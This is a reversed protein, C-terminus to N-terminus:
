RVRRTLVEGPELECGGTISIRSILNPRINTVSDALEASEAHQIQRSTSTVESDPQSRCMICPAVWWVLSVM